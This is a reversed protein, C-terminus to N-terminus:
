EQPHRSRCLDIGALAAARGGDVGMMERERADVGGLMRQPGSSVVGPGSRCAASCFASSPKAPLLLCSFGPVSEGLAPCLPRVVRLLVKAMPAVARLLRERSSSRSTLIEILIYVSRKISAVLSM